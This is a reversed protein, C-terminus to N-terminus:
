HMINRKHMHFAMMLRGLYIESLIVTTYRGMKENKHRIECGQLTKNTEDYQCLQVLRYM